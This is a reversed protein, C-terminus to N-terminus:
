VTDRLGVEDIKQLQTFSIAIKLTNLGINMAPVAFHRKWGPEGGVMGRKESVTRLFWDMQPTSLMKYYIGSKNIVRLGSKEIDESPSAWRFARPYGLVDIDFSIRLM